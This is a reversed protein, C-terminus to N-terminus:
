GDGKAEKDRKEIASRKADPLKEYLEHVHKPQTIMQEAIINILDFLRTAADKDDSLDIMGPHVSENGIVRVADLSKQVLPNLGKKVLGSIDDNLNEGSEGLHRCLMQISLRLLAAAGKPSLDVISRAEDVVALVDEPLDQNPLSGYKKPPYVLDENVWVAWKHCNYCESLFLNNLVPRQEFDPKDGPFLIKARMKKGWEILRRKEEPEIDNMQGLRKEFDAAPIGPLRSDSRLQKAYGSHWYQTTYAGCHPCSFATEKVSPERM